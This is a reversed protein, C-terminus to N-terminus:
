LGGAAIMLVWLPSTDASVVQGPNFLYGKGDLLNEAFRCHIYTDDLPAGISQTHDEGRESLYHKAVAFQVVLIVAGAALLAGEVMNRKVFSKLHVADTSISSLSCQSPM